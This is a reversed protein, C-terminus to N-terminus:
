ISVNDILRIDDIWIAGLRRGWQETIYDIKINLLKLKAIIININNINKLIRCFYAAKQYQIHNLRTNRSSLALGNKERVTPCAIIKTPLFLANSMKKVLLLQQYDKEGFYARSAQVINLLKLVVTLMGQFHGPRYKGELIQSLETEIIKINYNDPYLSQADPLLLYDINNSLLLKKDHEFTRPYLEFDKAYNFQTPNIFISVITINNDKKSQQCLSLHGAHLNGMTPVFGITKDRLKKRAINWKKIDSIIRM